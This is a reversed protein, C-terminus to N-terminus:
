IGALATTNSVTVVRATEVIIVIQQQEEEDFLGDRLKHSSRSFAYFMLLM